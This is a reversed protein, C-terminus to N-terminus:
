NSAILADTELILYFVKQVSQDLFHKYIIFIYLKQASRVSIEALFTASTAINCTMSRNKWYCPSLLTARKLRLEACM